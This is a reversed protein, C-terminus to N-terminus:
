RRILHEYLQRPPVIKVGEISKLDLLARDGTVFVDAGAAAAAKLLRADNDGFEAPADAVSNATRWLGEIERWTQPAPAFKRNLVDRIEEWVLPSTLVEHRELCEVLLSECLGRAAFASVWVNTDLFIRM